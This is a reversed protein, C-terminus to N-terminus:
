SENSRVEKRGTLTEPALRFHRFAVDEPPRDFIDIEPIEVAWMGQVASSDYPMDTVEELTGAAVVSRYGRDTRRHAVFSVPRDVVGEKTAGEPFALRFYFANADEDYGYSVPISFPPDDIATSFSLTGTGGRGLFDSMEDDTMRVWRLGEM